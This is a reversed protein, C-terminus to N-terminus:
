EDGKEGHTNHAYGDNAEERGRRSGQQFASFMARAEEPSREETPPASLPQPQSRERLQPVINAQRVRRPLGAYTGNVSSPTTTTRSNPAPASPTIPPPTARRPRIPNVSDTGAAMAPNASAVHPAEASPTVTTPTVAPPTAFRRGLRRELRSESRRELQPESRPEFQPDLRPQSIEELADLGTAPTEELGEEYGEARAASPVPETRLAAPTFFPSNDPGTGDEEPEEVVADRSSTFAGSTLADSTFADSTLSETVPGSIAAAEHRPIAATAPGATVAASTTGASIAGSTGDAAMLSRPILVISTTGGYPSARLVVGVGNRTALQGVVFLGLRGSDALNFEPPNALRENIDAYEQSTLGLGRDEVELVLGNAVLEGRVQVNTQPPSFTAANELLEAVLHVMDAVAAGALSANPMPMVSVRNYDEVESIATRIVDVLPVPQRWSRGPTAGSLIILGEAHRRMRTTLHDLRYLDELSEEPGGVRRQMADLLSLQRHLLTQKRRALNLFVQNVGQRLTAQGVAAEVATRQMSRFAQAVGEVEPSGGAQLPPAEADVDVEEGRRLRDVIDPLRVDALDLASRRLETFDHVLRRGFRLSFLITAIVAVLGLGGAVAIRAMISTAVSNTEEKLADSAKIRASDLRIVLGDVTTRWQDAETPLAGGTRVKDVIQTELGTFQNFLQSNAVGDYPARMGGELITRNTRYLFRRNAVWESFANREEQTLNGTTLAGRILADERAIMEHANGMAQMAGAQQFIRLDPVSVIREYVDFLRDMIGNYANIAQLRNYRGLRISERVSGLNDLSDRLSDLPAKLEEPMADVADEDAAAKEFTSVASTTRAQQAALTLSPARGSSLAVSALAREAQIQLGLDTSTIGITDYLTGARGLALGDGVTLNLVFGWLASLTLLPLLLLLFIKFRISRNRSGM